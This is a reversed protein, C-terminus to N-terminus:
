AKGHSQEDQERDEHMIRLPPTGILRASQRYVIRNCGMGDKLRGYFGQRINLFSVQMQKQIPFGRFLYRCGHM